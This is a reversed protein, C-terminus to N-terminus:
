SFSLTLLINVGFLNSRAWTWRRNQAWKSRGVLITLHCQGVQLSMFAELLCTWLFPCHVSLLFFFLFLQHGNKTTDAESSYVNVVILSM